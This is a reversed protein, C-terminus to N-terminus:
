LELSVQRHTPIHYFRNMKGVDRPQDLRGGGGPVALLLGLATLLLVLPIVDGGGLHVGGVPMDLFLLLKWM